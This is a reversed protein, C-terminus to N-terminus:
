QLVRTTQLGFRVVTALGAGLDSGMMMVERDHRDVLPGAFLAALVFPTYYFAIMLGLATASGTKQYVWITLAFQTMQTALVSILQGLWVVGFASLGTLRSNKSM